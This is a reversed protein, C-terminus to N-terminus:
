NSFPLLAWFQQPNFLAELLTPQMVGFDLINVGQKVTKHITVPHYYPKELTFDFVYDPLLYRAEIKQSRGNTDLSLSQSSDGVIGATRLIYDGQFTKKWKLSSIIQLIVPSKVETTFELPDSNFESDGEFLNLGVKFIGSQPAKLTLRFTYEKGPEIKINGPLEIAELGLEQAAKVPVLKVQDRDNWISQGTNKFTLSINYTEGSVISSYVEGKVLLAKNEQVPKGSVKPMNKITDYFSYYKPSDSAEKDIQTSIKKFSFHDFPSEQYTLLFPTVAVIRSSNWTNDFATKYNLSLSDAGPLNYNLILGEAHKWGTETIFVPLSKTVGLNRLQQIEWYWNGVTGRGTAEPSGAYGPNPYSHSVWGDLKNFIGPVEENMDRLFAVEDEYNPLQHPASADFGANLVFFDPSKNKLATITKDLTDAYSKADVSGGWEHAQNPENYVTVYRNKTPWNLSDLFDAWVSAEGIDPVKWYNGDAISSLRVIPILHRRRLDNFFEQWKDKKKDKGEILVTVYGWDGGTSNVLQAAPSSEDSTAQLIHIGFRNNPAGLPDAIAQVTTLKSNSTPLLFFLLLVVLIECSRVLLKKM